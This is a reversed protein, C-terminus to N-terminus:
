VQSLYRSLKQVDEEESIVLELHLEDQHSFIQSMSMFQCIKSKLDLRDGEGTLLEVRGKCSDVVEFFEKVNNIREIKM